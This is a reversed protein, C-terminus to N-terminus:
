LVMSVIDRDMRDIASKLKDFMEKNDRYVHMIQRLIDIARRFSYVLDGSVSIPNQYESLYKMMDNWSVGNSWLYGYGSIGFDFEIDKKSSIARCKYLKDIIKEILSIYPELSQIRYNFLSKKSSRSGLATALANIENQDLDEFVNELILETILLENIQIDKLVLAGTNFSNDENIYALNKLIDVKAWFEVSLYNEKEKITKRLQNVKKNLKLIDRRKLACKEYHICDLCIYNNSSSLYNYVKKELNNLNLRAKSIQKEIKSQYVQQKLDRELKKIKKNAKKISKELIGIKQKDKKLRRNYLEEDYTCEFDIKKTLRSRKEELQRQYHSIEPREQYAWFSNLLINEISDRPNLYLLNVISNYSLDFSSKIKETKGKIYKEIIAPSFDRIKTTIIVNGVEDIGRRGARGAKQHFQQSTLPMTTIGNFKSISGFVVTKVPFNLGLAFTSTCYLVKILGKEILEEVLRKYIPNMGSHHFGIGKDLISSLDNMEKLFLEEYSEKLKQIAINIQKKEAKNLFNFRNSLYRAYEECQKRNFNFYLMPFYSNGLIKIIDIHNATQDNKMLPIRNQNKDFFESIFNRIDESKHLPKLPFGKACLYFKLPVHRKTEKVYYIKKNKIYSIWDTLEGINPITASLGIIQTDAPLKIISEEWVVGREEDGIFHIEDFIVCVISEIYDKDDSYLINRLIETTMLLFSANTNIKFDGTILGINDKGFLDTYERYKQNSLAKIPATYIIRGKQFIHKEIVYDAILTKGTGTPASVIISHGQEIHNIAQEQFKDLIFNKFIM